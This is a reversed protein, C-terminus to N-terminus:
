RENWSDSAVVNGEHFAFSIREFSFSVAEMDPGDAMSDIVPSLSVVRLNEPIYSFYNSERGEDNIHYLDVRAQSLLSGSACSQFLDPSSRDIIKLISFPQHRRTSHQKGTQSDFSRSLNYDIRKIEICGRRDVIGCGGQIQRRNHDFLSMYAVNGM